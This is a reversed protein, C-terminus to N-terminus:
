QLGCMLLAPIVRIYESGQIEGCCSFAVQLIGFKVCLRGSNLHIWCRSCRVLAAFAVPRCNSCPEAPLCERVGPTAVFGMKLEKFISNRLSIHKAPPVRNKRVQVQALTAATSAANKGSLDGATVLLTRLCGAPPSETVVEAVVDPSQNLHLLTAQAVCPAANM